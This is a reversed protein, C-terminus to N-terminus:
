YDYVNQIFGYNWRLRQHFLKRVTNPAVTFVHADHCHEIKMHNVQMRFAIEADETNHAKRFKKRNKLVDRKFCFITRTYCTYWEYLFCRKIYLSMNYEVKQIAQLIKPNYVIVSPSVTMNKTRKLVSLM